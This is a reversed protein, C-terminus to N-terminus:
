TTYTIYTTQKLLKHLKNIYNIYNTNYNNYQLTKKHNNNNTTTSCLAQPQDLRAYRPFPQRHSSNGCTGTCTYTCTGTRTTHIREFRPSLFLPLQPAAYLSSSYQYQYLLSLNITYFVLDNTINVISATINLKLMKPFLCMLNLLNVNTKKLTYWLIYLKLLSLRPGVCCCVKAQSQHGERGEM